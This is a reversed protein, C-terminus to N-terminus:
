RPTWFHTRFVYGNEVGWFAGFFSGTALNWVRDRAVEPAVDARLRLRRWAVRWFRRFKSAWKMRAAPVLRVRNLKYGANAGRRVAPWSSWLKQVLQSTNPAVGKANADMVFEFVSTEAALLSAFYVDRQDPGEMICADAERQTEECAQFALICARLMVPTVDASNARGWRLLLCRLFHARLGDAAVFRCFLAARIRLVPPVREDVTKQRRCVHVRARGEVRRIAALAATAEALNRALQERSSAMAAFAFSVRLVVACPSSSVPERSPADGCVERLFPADGCKEGLRRTVEVVLM